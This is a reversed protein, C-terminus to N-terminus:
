NWDRADQDTDQSNGAWVGANARFAFMQWPEEAGQAGVQRSGHQGQM